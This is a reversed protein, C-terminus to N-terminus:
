PFAKLRALFSFSIFFFTEVWGPLLEKLFFSFFGSSCLPSLLQNQRPVTDCFLPYILTQLLVSMHSVYHLLHKAQPSVRM